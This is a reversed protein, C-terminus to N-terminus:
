SLAVLRGNSVRELFKRLKKCGKDHSSNYYVAIDFLGDALAAEINSFKDDFFITLNRAVPYQYYERNKMLCTEYSKQMPKHLWNNEESAIVNRGKNTLFTIAFQTATQQEPRLIGKELQRHLFNVNVQVLGEGMNSLVVNTHGNRSLEQLLAIMDYDLHNAQQSFRRLLDAFEKGAPSTELTKFMADWVYGRPDHLKKLKRKYNWLKGFSALMKFAYSWGRKETVAIQYLNATISYKKKFIVGNLDWSLLVHSLCYEPVLTKGTKDFLGQPFKKINYYVNPFNKDAALSPNKAMSFAPTILALSIFITLLKKM